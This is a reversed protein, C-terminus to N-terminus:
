IDLVVQCRLGGPTKKVEFLHKTPAKVDVRLKHRAREIKEGYAFGSLQFKGGKKEVGFAFKSFLLGKADKLFVLHELLSFLGEALSKESIKIEEKERKGVDKTDVMAEELALAANELLQRESQGYAEFALDATAIDPLYKFKM